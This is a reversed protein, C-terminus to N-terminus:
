KRHFGRRMSYDVLSTLMMLSLQEASLKRHLETQWVQETSNQEARNAMYVQETSNPEAVNAM